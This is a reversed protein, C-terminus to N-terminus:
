EVLSFAVRFGIDSGRAGERGGQRRASRCQNAFDAWSGGRLFRGQFTPRGAPNRRQSQTEIFQSKDACWERVNGHMDYLGWGNPPYSGVKCTRVSPGGAAGSNFNAEKASLLLGFHFPTRTGARCAYEWEAETPLRYVRGAAKEMALASLKTCFEVADRWSVSDVPFDPTDLGLVAQKGRGSSSFWSPNRNMVQRYQRQTVEFVGLYIAGPIKVEGQKEAEYRGREDDPSGKTFKGPPIAVLRMGISNVVEAPRVQQVGLDFVRDSYWEDGSYALRLRQVGPRLRYGLTITAKGGDLRARALVRLPDLAVLEVRGTPLPVSRHEGALQVEIQGTGWPLLERHLAPLIRKPRWKGVELVAENATKGPLYNANGVFHGTIVYNGPNRPARLMVVNGQGPVVLPELEQDGAKFRFGGVPLGVARGDEWTLGLKFHEGPRATVKNPALMVRGLPVPAQGPPPMQAEPVRADDENNKEAPPVTQHRAPPPSEVSGKPAVRPTGSRLFLAWLLLAGIALVLTLGVSVVLLVIDRRRFGSRPAVAPLPTMGTQQGSLSLPREAVLATQPKAQATAFPLLAKAVEGPTQYRKRPDKALMKAVVAWLEAPVDQRLEPLPQAEGQIQALVTNLPTDAQFPPRAALLFYLTAGLSYIDARIDARAADTAQEPAVYEPTGMFMQLRTQKDKGLLERPGRALGFDLLKVEKKKATVMLNAPKVDRHVMGRKHAHQLGLAAQVACRCSFDVPLPGKNAVLGDLTFGEVYEMVLVLVTGIQEADLARVINPHKLKGAAQMERLFRARAEPHEVLDPNLVKIAVLEGLFTHRAKYVAGMGGHGLKGLLEYKGCGALEAPLDDGANAPAPQACPLPTRSASAVPTPTPQAGRPPLTEGRPAAAHVQDLFWSPPQEEVLRRCEPCAVLHDYVTSLEAPSLRNLSYDALQRASPHTTADLM